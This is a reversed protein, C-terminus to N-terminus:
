MLDKVEVIRNDLYASFVKKPDLFLVNIKGIGIRKFMDMSINVELNKDQTKPLLFYNRIETIHSKEILKKYALEYFFQKSIDQIGPQHTIKSKDESIKPM